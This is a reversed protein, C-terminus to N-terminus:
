GDYSDGRKPKEFDVVELLDDDHEIYEETLDDNDWTRYARKPKEQEPKVYDRKRWFKEDDKFVSIIHKLVNEVLVVAIWILLMITVIALFFQSGVNFTDIM